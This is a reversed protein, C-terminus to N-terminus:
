DKSTKVVWINRYRVPNGHDQLRLPGDGPVENHDGAKTPGNIEIDKHIVKGNQVVSIRPKAIKTGSADFRPAVFDIDYTQWEEPPLCANVDPAKQLYIAGCDQTGSQLGYSDLVQVEYRGMLYVGSNGRAQGTVEPPYKPVRFEVHVKCDGFKEKTFIDGGKVQMAGDVIEWRAASGDEHQWASTDKGDFLVIKKGDRKDASAPSGSTSSHQHRDCGTMAVFILVGVCIRM